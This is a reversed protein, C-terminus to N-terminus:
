GPSWVTFWVGAITLATGVLTRSSPKEGLILSFPVGFLPTAATLISTRAAGALRVASVFTYTDRWQGRRAVMIALVPFLVSLRVANAIVADADQAGVRLLVTSGAWCMAAALALAVGTLNVRRAARGDPESASRRVFALLYAGFAILVAGAVITWDIREDLFLLSLLMTFFPYTTSLPMARSLGILKMSQLYILDGVVLGLLTSAALFGWARIPLRGLEPIRGGVVLMGWYLILAPVTRLAGLMVVQVKHTQSKMLASSTAWLLACALAYLEGPL